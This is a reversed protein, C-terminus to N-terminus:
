KGKQWASVKKDMEIGDVYEKNQYQIDGEKVLRVQENTLLYVSEENADVLQKIKELFSTDDIHNIKSVLYKKLDVALM